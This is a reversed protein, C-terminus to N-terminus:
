PNLSVAALQRSDLPVQAVILDPSCEGSVQLLGRSESVRVYGEYDRVLSIAADLDGNAVELLRAALQEKESESPVPLTCAPHNPGCSQTIFCDHANGLRNLTGSDHFEHDGHNGGVAICDEDCHGDCAAVTPAVSFPTTVGATAASGPAAVFGVLAVLGVLAIAAQAYRVM